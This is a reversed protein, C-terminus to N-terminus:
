GHITEPTRTNELDTLNPYSTTNYLWVYSYHKSSYYCRGETVEIVKCLYPYNFGSAETSIAHDQHLAHMCTNGKLHCRNVEEQEVRQVPVSHHILWPHVPLLTRYISGNIIDNHPRGGTKWVAILVFYWQHFWGPMMWLYLRDKGEVMIMYTMWSSLHWWNM